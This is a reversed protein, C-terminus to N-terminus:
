LQKAGNLEASFNKPPGKVSLDMSSFSDTAITYNESALLDGFYLYVKESYTKM